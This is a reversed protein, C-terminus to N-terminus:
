PSAPAFCADVFACDLTAVWLLGRPLYHHNTSVGWWFLWLLFLTVGLAIFYVLWRLIKFWAVRRLTEPWLEGAVPGKGIARAGRCDAEPPGSLGALHDARVRWDPHRYAVLFVFPSAVLFAFHLLTPVLTSFLMAGIWLGAGSPDLAAACLYDRVALPQVDAVFGTVINLSLLLRPLVFALGCLFVLAALADVM